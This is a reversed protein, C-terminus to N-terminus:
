SRNSRCSGHKYGETFCKGRREQEIVFAVRPKKGSVLAVGKTRRAPLKMRVVEAVSVGALWSGVLGRLPVLNRSDVLVSHGRLRRREHFRIDAM